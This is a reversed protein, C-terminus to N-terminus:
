TEPTAHASAQSRFDGVPMTRSLAMGVILWLVRQYMMEHFVSMVAWAVLVLITAMMFKDTDPHSIDLRPALDGRAAAWIRIFIQGFLIIMVGLGIIGTETLLWLATNHIQVLPAGAPAKRAQNYLHSGLGTGIVPSTRWAAIAERYSELRATLSIQRLDSIKENGENIALMKGFVNPASGLPSSNTIGLSPGPLQPVGWFIVGLGLVIMASRFTITRLSLAVIFVTTLAILASISRTFLIGTIIVGAIFFAIKGNRYLGNGQEAFVLSLCLGCLLYFGMANANGSFGILRQGNSLPLGDSLFSLFIFAIIVAIQFLQFISVFRRFIEPRATKGLLMGAGLYALLVYWGIYKFIAWNTFEGIASRGVLFSGTLVLTALVIMGLVARGGNQYFERLLALGPLLLFPSTFLLVLDATNFRVDTDGIKLTTQIQIIVALLSVCVIVLGSWQPTTPQSSRKNRSESKLNM